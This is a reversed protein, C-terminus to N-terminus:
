YQSRALSCLKTPCKEVQVVRGVEDGHRLCQFDQICYPVVLNAHGDCIVLSCGTTRWISLIRLSLQGQPLYMAEDGDYRIV